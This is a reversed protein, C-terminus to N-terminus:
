STSSFMDCNSFNFELDRGITSQGGQPTPGFIQDLRALAAECDFFPGDSTSGNFTSETFPLNDSNPRSLTLASGPVHPTPTTDSTGNSLQHDPTDEEEEEEEEEEEGNENDSDEITEKSKYKKRRTSNGDTAAPRKCKSGTDSRPRRRTDEIEGSELKENHELCMKEFDEDTLIKWHATGLEWKRLLMELEPLASSVKSLNAFPVNEPWGEIMVQYRQVVNWFYYAWQMKADSDGTVEGVNHLTRNIINRISSRIESVRQQHNKAAGRMGQVAFGEMKSILDQNDISMVSQMFHQVGETAFTVGRLPLDTSGCTVYLITEAGTRCNLSNLENEVAKLTQTINNIKSKTSTHVGTVKTLKQEAYEKVLDQQEEKSLMHYKAKHEHVLQELAHRGQDRNESDQNKKWCFANWANVKSHRSRLIGHGIYLDNQVHCISKHHASAITKTADDIQTWADDLAVKFQHSKARRNANLISRAEKSLVVKPRIRPQIQVCRSANKNNKNTYFSQSPM